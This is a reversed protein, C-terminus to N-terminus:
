FLKLQTSSPNVEKLHIPKVVEIAKIQTFPKSDKWNKCSQCFLVLRKKNLQLCKYIYLTGIGAYNRPPEKGCCNCRTPTKHYCCDENTNLWKKEWAPHSYYFGYHTFQIYENNSANNNFEELLPRNTTIEYALNYTLFSLM